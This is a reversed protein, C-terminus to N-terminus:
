QSVNLTKIRMSGNKQEEFWVEGDGIMVGQWNAFLCEPVQKEIAKVVVPTFFRDYDKVFESSSRVLRHGKDVNVNLPYQVMASIKQKDGAKVATTLSALFARAKPGLSPAFEEVTSRGCKSRQGPQPSGLMFPISLLVLSIRAIHKHTKMANM